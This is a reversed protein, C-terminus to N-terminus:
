AHPVGRAIFCLIIFTYDFGMWSITRDRCDFDLDQEIRFGHKKAVEIAQEIEQRSFIHVPVGYARRGDINVVKEDWYDTSVVLSGGRKMIRAMESFFKELDVGHEIVSLCGVADFYNHPYGTQTIDGRRYTIAGQFRPPDPNTLDLAVLRKYGFKQLSPLFASAQIGGADLIVSDPNPHRKMMWNLAKVNDWNKPPDSRYVYGMHEAVKIYRDIDAKTKLTTNMQAEETLTSDEM